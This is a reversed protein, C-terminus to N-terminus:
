KPEIGINAHSLEINKFTSLIMVQECAFLFQRGRLNM